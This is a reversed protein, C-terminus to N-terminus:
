LDCPSKEKGPDFADLQVVQGSRASEYCAYMVAVSRLYQRSDTEWPTKHLLGDIFHQQAAIVSGGRWGDARIPYRHEREAEGREEFYIRGQEDLKLRGGTGEITMQGYTPPRVPDTAMVRNADYIGTAGSRFNLHVVALDEGAIRPNVTRIACYVSDIEGFLYRFTDLWHIGTEFLLFQPMDRFYPQLPYPAEGWGDGPRMTFVAHYVDGIAGGALLRKIERYWCQWRWNENIMLPVGAEECLKAIMQTQNWTPAVPKQCLIPIRRTACLQVLELHAGPPTCIDVFDPQIEGLMRVTDDFAQLHYKDALAQAKTLSRDAVAAIAAGDVQQWAAQQIDSFFGAGITVGTLRKM